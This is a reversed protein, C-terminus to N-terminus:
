ETFPLSRPDYYPCCDVAERGRSTRQNRRFAAWQSAPNAGREPFAPVDRWPVPSLTGCLVQLISPPIVSFFPWVTRLMESLISFVALVVTVRGPAQCGSRVGGHLFHAPAKLRLWCSGSAARLGASAIPRRLVCSASPAPLSLGAGTLGRLRGTALGM